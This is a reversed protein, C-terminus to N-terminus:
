NRVRGLDPQDGRRGCHVAASDYTSVSSDIRSNSIKQGLGRGGTANNGYKPCFGEYRCSDALSTVARDPCESAVRLFFRCMISVIWKNPLVVEFAAQQM